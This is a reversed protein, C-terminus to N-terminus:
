VGVKTGTGGRLMDERARVIGTGRLERVFERKVETQRLSKKTVQKGKEEMLQSDGECFEANM